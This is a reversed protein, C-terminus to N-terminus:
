AKCMKTLATLRERTVFMDVLYAGMNPVDLYLRFFRHHNGSALSSRMELAHRVAPEEKEAPTLQALIENLGTRNATHISYLIRYAMFEGPHGGLNLAYLARLQTQCGNYEGLDGKELAIRAHMEYVDVTFSNKIHQVTLDQRMSKFQDCIYNYDRDQKWKAKLFALTRELVHQPRVEHPRPARTLRFYGKELDQCTGVVPGSSRSDQDSDDDSSSNHWTTNTNTHSLNFRQRRKELDAQSKSTSEAIGSNKKKKGQAKDARGKPTKTMRDELTRTRWPPTMSKRTSEMEADIRRKRSNTQDPSYSSNAPYESPSPWHQLPQTQYFTQTQARLAARDQAIFQQPLPLTSWDVTHLRDGEAAETILQKLKAEMEQTSIGLIHVDPAFSRRVYEKVSEPWEVRPKTAPPPASPPALSHQSAHVATYAPAMAHGNM